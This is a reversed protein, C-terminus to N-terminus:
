TSRRHFNLFREHPTTNTATCLLSRVSHLADLFVCEWETVDRQQTKLALTISKWLTDRLREVQGNGRPNYQTTRSTAVVRDHPFMQVEGSMFTGGRDSHVHSPMGFVSFLQNLCKIVTSSSVHTCTFAFPYRSYEGIVTLLYKNHSTPPLPGKFDISVSEFPQAAKIFSGFPHNLFRPKLKSCVSCQNAVAKVNEILVAFKQAFLIFCGRSAPDVYRTITNSIWTHCRLYTFLGRFHTLPKIEIVQLTSSM